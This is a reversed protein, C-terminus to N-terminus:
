KTQSKTENKSGYLEGVDFLVKLIVGNRVDLEVDVFDNEPIDKKIEFYKELYKKAFVAKERKMTFNLIM